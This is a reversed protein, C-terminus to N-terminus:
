LFYKLFINLIKLLDTGIGFIFATVRTRLEQHAERYTMLLTGHFVEGRIVRCRDTCSPSEMSDLTPLNTGPCASWFAHSREFIIFIIISFIFKM